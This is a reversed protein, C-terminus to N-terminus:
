FPIFKRSGMYEMQCVTKVVFPSPSGPAAVARRFSSGSPPLGLLYPHLIAPLRQSRFPVRLVPFPTLHLCDSRLLGGNLRQVRFERCPTWVLASCVRNRCLSRATFRSSIRIKVDPRYASREVTRGGAHFPARSITSGFWALAHILNNESVAPRPRPSERHISSPM